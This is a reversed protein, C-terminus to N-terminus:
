DECARTLFKAVESARTGCLWCKIRPWQEDILLSSLELLQRMNRLEHAVSDSYSSGTSEYAVFRNQAHIVFRRPDDVMAQVVHRIAAENVVMADRPEMSLRADVAALLPVGSDAIESCRTGLNGILKMSISWAAALSASEKTVDASTSIGPARLSRLVFANWTVADAIPYARAIANWASIGSQRKTEGRNRCEARVQEKLREADDWVCEARLRQFLQSRSEGSSTALNRTAVRGNSGGISGTSHPTFTVSEM